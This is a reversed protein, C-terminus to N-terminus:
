EKKNGFLIENYPYVTNQKDMLLNISMQTTGNKGIMFLAVIFMQTCTKTHVYTKM